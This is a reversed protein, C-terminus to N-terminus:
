RHPIPHLAHTFRRHLVQLEVLRRDMGLVLLQEVFRGRGRGPRRREGEVAAVPGVGEGLHDALVVDGLRQLAGQGVIPDVVRVEEGTGAAAALGGRGADQGAAQVAFPPRDRHGAPLALGAPIQGPAARAADVHDLDVCGAVAPHVVGAVQSLPREESRHGAPVLDVDDVLRVHDGRRPEVGQELQDLLRRRVDLEDEGGGLRVLHDASDPGPGVVVGEPQHRGSQQGVVEALQTRGLPDRHFRRHQRQHDTGPGPRDAVRERHEVLQETPCVLV